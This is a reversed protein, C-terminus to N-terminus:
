KEGDLNNIDSEQAIPEPFGDVASEVEPLGNEKAIIEEEVRM